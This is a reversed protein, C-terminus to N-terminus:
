YYLWRRRKQYNKHWYIGKKGDKEETYTWDGYLRKKSVSVAQSDASIVMMMISLTLLLFRQTM